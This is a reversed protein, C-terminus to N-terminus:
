KGFPASHLPFRMSFSGSFWVAFNMSISNEAYFANETFRGHGSVSFGRRLTAKSRQPPTIIQLTQLM